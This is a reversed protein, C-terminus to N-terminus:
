VISSRSVPLLPTVLVQISKESRPTAFHRDDHRLFHFGTGREPMEVADTLCGRYPLGISGEHGPDLPSPMRTCGMGVLAFAVAALRALSM